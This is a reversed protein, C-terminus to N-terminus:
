MRPEFVDLCTGVWATRHLREDICAWDECGDLTAAENVWEWRTVGQESTSLGEGWFFDQGPPLWFRLTTHNGDAKHVMSSFSVGAGGDVLGMICEVVAANSQEYRDCDTDCEGEDVIHVDCYHLADCGPCDCPIEEGTTGPFPPDLDFDIPESRGRDCGLGLVVLVAVSVSGVRPM